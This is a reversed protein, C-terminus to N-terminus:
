KTQELVGVRSKLESIAMVAGQIDASMKLRDTQADKQASRGDNWMVVAIAQALALVGIMIKMAGRGQNMLGQETTTHTAFTELHRELKTSIDRVTTTNAELSLSIAHLVILSARQKPDNEAAIMQSIDLSPATDAHRRHMAESSM